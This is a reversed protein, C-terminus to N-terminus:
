KAAGVGKLNPYRKLVAAVVKSKIDKYKPWTAWVLATKARKEDHIPWARRDPFIFDSDKLKDREEPTLAEDLHYGLTIQLVDDGIGEINMGLGETLIKKIKELKEADKLASQLAAIKTSKDEEGEKESDDSTEEKGKELKDLAAQVNADPKAKAPDIGKELDKTSAKLIDDIDDDDEFLGENLASIKDFDIDISESLFVQSIVKRKREEDIGLTTLYLYIQQANKGESALKSVIPFLSGQGYYSYQGILNENVFQKYSKLSM